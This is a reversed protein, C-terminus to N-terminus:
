QPLGGGCANPHVAEGDSIGLRARLEDPLEVAVYLGRAPDVVPAVEIPSLLGDHWWFLRDSISGPGEAFLGGAIVALALCARGLAAEGEIVHYLLSSRRPVAVLVGYPLGAPVLDDMLLLHSSAFHWTPCDLSSLRVGDDASTKRTSPTLGEARLNQRVLEWAEEESIAWRELDARVISRAMDIEDAVLIARLGAGIDRLVWEESVVESPWLRAKLLPLNRELRTPMAPAAENHRSRGRVTSRKARRATM